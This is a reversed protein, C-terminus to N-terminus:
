KYYDVVVYETGVTFPVTFTLTTGVLSYETSQKRLGNRFVQILKTADPTFSLTVASGTPFVYEDTVPTLSDYESTILTLSGISEDIKELIVCLSDDEEINTNVLTDGVYYVCKCKIAESCGCIVKKNCTTM